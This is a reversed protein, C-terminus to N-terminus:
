ESRDQPKTTVPTMVIYHSARETIQPHNRAMHLAWVAATALGAPSTIDSNVTGTAGCLTCMVSALTTTM